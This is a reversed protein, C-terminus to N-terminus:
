KFLDPFFHQLLGRVIISITPVIATVAMIITKQDKQREAKEHNKEETVVELSKKIKTQLVEENRASRILLWLDDWRDVFETDEFSKPYRNPKRRDFLNEDDPM